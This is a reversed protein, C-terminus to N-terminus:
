WGVMRQVSEVDSVGRCQLGAALLHFISSSSSPASLMGRDYDSVLIHREKEKEKETGDNINQTKVVHRNPRTRTGSAEHVVQLFVGVCYERRM